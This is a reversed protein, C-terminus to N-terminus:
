RVLRLTAPDALTADEESPAAFMWLDDALLGSGSSAELAADRGVYENWAESAFKPASRSANTTFNSLCSSPTSPLSASALRAILLSGRFPTPERPSGPELGLGSSGRRRPEM